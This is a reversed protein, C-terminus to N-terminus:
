KYSPSDNLSASPHEHIPQRENNDEPHLLRYPGTITQSSEDAKFRLYLIREKEAMQGNKLGQYCLMLNYHAQLDEPDIQFVKQLEPIAESYRRELFLIRGIQNLVVRDRPYSNAAQRLHQLAPDYQGEAKLAMAYFFHSKALQPNVHLAKELVEKAGSINGEQLRSRGINVWGDAYNPDLETVKLFAQEAGKLDGQLLLGIGYDNWRERDAPDQKAKKTAVENSDGVHLTAETEDMVIIPLDPISKINGSVGSTDGKFIWHGDDYGPALGFNKDAPDRIGAFAWQTNWWAFKRYNLKAKLRITNGCDEPIKLRFHATDAAGPPILRVYAVSRAAWANRKNIRNGHEDLLLSRYFHAGPEVPGKGDDEVRGSWFIVKGRDDVAQLELWVDFADVTGGPFFHGVGRTRVVVDLRISEGRKIKADVKDLPAIVESPKRLVAQTRGFNMAEEGIAFTSALAPGEGARSKIEGGTLPADRSIAFIDVTVQNNKLFSEVAHLQETDGNVFPLATNAGPFRHSHVKGNEAAPDNSAVLPMHCDACKKPKPPYYFSRAGQGSVGSAQWNDYDNFGRFWRYHNVPIDLHVKHCSSCFEPTSGRVFPKMFVKKHPEPDTFVLFDHLEQLLKNKSVALDHLPPYEIVFDGQGMTSKVHVIAHCSTCALGAQAEPTQIIKKIPTDMMGNFLVAHDHCGGCWKSPRTGIVDQMYEISKRYWQNNFSSFHHASSFWQNYIEEHCRKCTDSTMFFTSPIIKGSTTEASSPFFPGKEGAGEKFASVPPSPPNLIRQDSGGHHEFMLFTLPFIVAIGVGFAWLRSTSNVSADSKERGFRRYLEIALLVVGIASFAIHIHLLWRYAKIAGTWVLIMGTVMGILVIGASIRFLVSPGWRVAFLYRVFLIAVIFGLVVHLLVNTMYFISPEAFAALYASNLVLAAFSFLLIRSRM